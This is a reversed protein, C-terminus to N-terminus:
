DTKVILLEVQEPFLSFVGFRRRLVTFSSFDGHPPRDEVVERSLVHVVHSLRVVRCIGGTRVM